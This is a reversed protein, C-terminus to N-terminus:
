RAGYLEQLVRAPHSAGSFLRSLRAMRPSALDRIAADDALIRRILDYKRMREADSLKVGQEAEKLAEVLRRYEDQLGILDHWLAERAATLMRGSLAAIAEYRAFYEAKSNM